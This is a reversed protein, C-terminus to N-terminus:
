LNRVDYKKEDVASVRSQEMLLEIHSHVEGAGLLIHHDVLDGFLEKAISFITQPGNEDLIEIIRLEREEHHQLIEDVRQALNDIEVGHGPLVRSVKLDRVRCLSAQYKKLMNDATVETAGINPTYDPLLHDGAFLLDGLRFCVSGQTHGPTHLVEIQSDGFPIADGDQLPTAKISKGLKVLQNRMGLMNIIEGPIGWDAMKQAYLNNIFDNREEFQAVDAHDDEHIFVEAGSREVLRHALGFHDLHKHTLLIKTIEEIQHGHRSLEAELEALAEATDIGTDILIREDNHSVLFANNDKEFYPNPMRISIINNPKM